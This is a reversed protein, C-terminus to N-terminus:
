FHFNLSLFGVPGLKTRFGESKQIDDEPQNEYSSTYENFYKDMNFRLETSVSIAPHFHYKFGLLPSFVFSTNEVSNAYSYIDGVYSEFDYNNNRKLFSFDLGYFFQAKNIDIHRELGVSFGFNTTSNETRGNDNISNSSVNSSFTVRSRLAMKKFHLRYGLGINTTGTNVGYYENFFFYDDFDYYNYYYPYNNKQLFDEVFISIEHKVKSSDSNSNQAFSNIGFLLVIVVILYKKM